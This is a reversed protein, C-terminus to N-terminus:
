LKLHFIEPLNRYSEAYDLGYGVLFGQQVVHCSYDVVVDAKRRELKDILTCVRMSRPEFNQFYDLLWRVTLGTDVIDEVILVDKKKIDLELEKTLRIAGSSSTASGYSAIRVFDIKLPIALHRILDSLFVFAGKLVGILVLDCGAYDASIREAVDVIRKEIEKRSLVPIFEPMDPHNLGM